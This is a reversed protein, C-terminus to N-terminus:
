VGVDGNGEAEYGISVGAEVIGGVEIGGVRRHPGRQNLGNRARM